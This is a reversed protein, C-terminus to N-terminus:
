FYRLHEKGQVCECENEVAKLKIKEPNLLLCPWFVIHWVLEEFCVQNKFCHMCHTTYPSTDKIIRIEERRCTMVRYVLKERLRLLSAFHWRCSSLILNPQTKVDCLM